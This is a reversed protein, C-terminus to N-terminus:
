MHAAFVIQKAGAPPNFEFTTKGFSPSLNWKTFNAWFQPHEEAAPYNLVVRLPLPQKSDAIWVQFDVAATRAAVHHVPQGLIDTREVYEISQVRRQLEDPFRQMFMPALPLRMQLDRVFHVVTADIDGPQPAQAYLGTEGDLMTILKGDFLMLDRDGHSAAELVRVRNPRQVALERIEGFEIKQGNDQVVEYGVRLTVSFKEAGGLFRAMEMLRARAFQQLETETATAGASMPLSAAQGPAPATEAWATNTALLSTALILSPRLM